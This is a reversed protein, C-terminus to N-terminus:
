AERVPRALVLAPEFDVVVTLPTGDTVVVKVAVVGIDGAPLEEACTVDFEERFVACLITKLWVTHRDPHIVHCTNSGLRQKPVAREAAPFDM